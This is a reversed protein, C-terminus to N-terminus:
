DDADIYDKFVYRSSGNSFKVRYTTGPMFNDYNPTIVGRTGPVICTADGWRYYASLYVNTIGVIVKDGVKFEKNKTRKM